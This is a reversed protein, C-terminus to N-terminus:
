CMVVLQAVFSCHLLEPVSVAGHKYGFGCAKCFLIDTACQTNWKEICIKM